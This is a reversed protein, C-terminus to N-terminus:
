SIESPAVVLGLGNIAHFGEWFSELFEFDVLVIIPILLDRILQVMESLQLIQRHKIIRQPIM